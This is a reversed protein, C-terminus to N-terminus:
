SISPWTRADTGLAWIDIELGEKIRKSVGVPLSEPIEKVTAGIGEGRPYRVFAPGQYDLGTQIMDALEDEDSPAM